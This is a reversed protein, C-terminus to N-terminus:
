SVDAIQKAKELTIEYSWTVIPVLEWDEHFPSKVLVFAPRYFFNPHFWDVSVVEVSGVTAKNVMYRPPMENRKNKVM